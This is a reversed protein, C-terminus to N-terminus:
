RATSASMEDVAGPPWKVAPCGGQFGGPFALIAYDALRRRGDLLDLLHVREPSAGVLRFAEATEVECNLGLGTLVIVRVEARRRARDDSM